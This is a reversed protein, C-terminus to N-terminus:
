VAHRFAQCSPLLKTIERSDSSTVYGEGFLVNEPNHAGNATLTHFKFRFGTDEDAVSVYGRAACTTDSSCALFPLTGSSNGGVVLSLGFRGEFNTGSSPFGRM